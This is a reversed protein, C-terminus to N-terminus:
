QLLCAFVESSCLPFFLYAFINKIVVRLTVLIYKRWIIDGRLWVHGTLEWFYQFIVEGKLIWVNDLLAIILISLSILTLNKDQDLM